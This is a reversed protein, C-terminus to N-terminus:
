IILIDNSSNFIILYVVKILLVLENTIKTAGGGSLINWAGEWKHAYLYSQLITFLVGRCKQVLFVFISICVLKSIINHSNPM